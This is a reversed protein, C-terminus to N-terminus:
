YLPMMPMTPHQPLFSSPPPLFFPSANPDGYTTPAMVPMPPYTPYYAQQAYGPTPPPIQPGNWVQSGNWQPSIQPAGHVPSGSETVNGMQNSILDQPIAQPALGKETTETAPQSPFAWNGIRKLAEYGIVPLTSAVALVSLAALNNGTKFLPAAIKLGMGATAALGGWFGIRALGGRMKENREPMAAVQRYAMYGVPLAMSAIVGLGTPNM